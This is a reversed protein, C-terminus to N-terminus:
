QTFCYVDVNFLWGVVPWLIGVVFDGLLLGLFFPLVIRYAKLGGTRFTVLKSLWAIFMPFWLPGMSWSTSVAFGLPHFPWWDFRLRLFYLLWAFAMGWGIALTAPVNPDKPNNVWNTVHQGFAESGYLNIVGSMGVAAGRQYGIHLYTWFGSVIATVSALAIATAMYRQPTGSREAIKIGDLQYAIPHSDYARNFWWFWTLGNLDSRTFAGTGFAGVLALEPGMAFLEHSPPGFQAHVRSIALAMLFYLSVAAVAVWVRIGIFHFFTMIALTGLILGLAATRYSMPGQEEGPESHGLYAARFVKALHKRGAWIAFLAIAYYGGLAQQSMYPFGTASDIGLIAGAVRLMRWMIFFFWCSFLIDLPLMFSFGIAFPFFGIPLKGMASWPKAVFSAGLDTMKVCIQPLSPYLQHLGDLLNIGGAIAFGVWMLRNCLLGNRPETLQMPLEVIPFQLKDHQIWQQRVITNICFMVFLMVSIVVGWVGLPLLWPKLNAWIYMSTGGEYWGKLALPDRVSIWDPVYPWIIETWKNEPTAFRFPYTMMPILIDLWDFSMIATSIVLMVYVVLLEGQSFASRPSVRALARNVLALILLFLICNAFLSITSPYPGRGQEMCMLYCVSVPTLLFGVLISRYRRLWGVPKAAEIQPALLKGPSITSM